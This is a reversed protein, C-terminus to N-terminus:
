SRATGEDEVPGGASVPRVAIRLKGGVTDLRLEVNKDRSRARAQELHGNISKAFSGYGMRSVTMGRARRANRYALYLDRLQDAGKAEDSMRIAVLTYPKSPDEIEARRQPRGNRILAGSEELARMRRSWRELNTRYRHLLNNFRFRDSTQRPPNKSYHRIIADCEARREHPPWRVSQNLYMEYGVALRKMAKELRKLDDRVTTPEFIGDAM